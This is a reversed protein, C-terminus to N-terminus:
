PWTPCILLDGIRERHSSCCHFSHAFAKHVPPQEIGQHPARLGLPWLLSFHISVQFRM